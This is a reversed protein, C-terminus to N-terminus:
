GENPNRRSPQAPGLFLSIDAANNEPLIKFAGNSISTYEPYTTGYYRLYKILDEIYMEANNKWKYMLPDLDSSNIPQSEAGSKELIGKNAYRWKFTESSEYLIYHVMAKLIYDNLITSFRAPVATSSNINALLATDIANYLDTGLKRLIYKDQVLEIVPTIKTYDVNVDIVSKKILYDSGIWLTAM